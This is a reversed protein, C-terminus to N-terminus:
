PSSAREPETAQKVVVHLTGEEEDLLNGAHIRYPIGFSRAAEPSEFVIRVPPLDAAYDHKLKAVHWRVEYRGEGHEEIEPDTVNPVTREGQRTLFAYDPTYPQIARVLRLDRDRMIQERTRPAQPPAPPESGEEDAGSGEVVRFRGSLTLEVDVDTGPATGGNFLEVPLPVTLHREIQWEWTEMLHAAYAKFYAECDRNYRVYEDQPVDDPLVSFGPRPAEYKPPYKERLAAVEGNVYSGPAELHPPLRIVLRDGPGDGCFRLSLKPLAGRYRDLQRRLEKVEAELPDPEGEHKCEDPLGIATFGLRRAEIRPTADQSVLVLDADPERDRFTLMSALMVDDSRGPDLDHAPYDIRPRGQVVEITVGARLETPGKEAWEEIRQIVRRARQRINGSSHSDKHKDLETLTIHPIVLRVEDAGLLRTWPLDEVPKYHLYIMTDLFATKKM